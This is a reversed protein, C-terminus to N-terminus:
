RQEEPSLYRLNQYEFWTLGIVVVDLLSILLLLWSHTFSYRYLQYIILICFIAIAIPYYNLKKRWLGGILWLKIVGHSLLYFATFMQSTVSLGHATHMLYTAIVDHPDETLEIHTISEVLNLIYQKSVFYTFIGAAIESVALVAKFLLSIEFAVHISKRSIM